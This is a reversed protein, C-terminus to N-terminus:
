TESIYLLLQVFNVCFRERTNYTQDHVIYTPTTVDTSLRQNHQIYIPPIM